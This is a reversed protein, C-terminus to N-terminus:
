IEGEQFMIIIMQQQKLLDAQFHLLNNKEIIKKELQTIKRHLEASLNMEQDLLTKYAKRETMPRGGQLLPM